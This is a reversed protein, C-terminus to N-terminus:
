APQRIAPADVYEAFRIAREGAFEWSHVFPYAANAAQLRGLVVVRDGDELVADVHVEPAELAHALAAFYSLVGDHGHYDGGQPLVTPVHWEIREDLAALVGSLDGARFAAYAARLTDSHPM